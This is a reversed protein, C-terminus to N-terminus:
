QKKGEQQIFEFPPLRPESAEDDSFRRHWRLIQCPFRKIQYHKLQLDAM